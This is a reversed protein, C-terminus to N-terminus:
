TTTITTNVLLLLVLLLLLQTAAGAGGYADTFQARTFLLVNSLVAKSHVYTISNQPM